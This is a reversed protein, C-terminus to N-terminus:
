TGFTRLGGRYPDFPTEANKSWVVGRFWGMIVGICKRSFFRNRAFVREVGYLPPPCLPSIAIKPSRLHGFSLNKWSDRNKLKKRMSPCGPGKPLHELVFFACKSWKKPRTRDIKPSKRIELGSFRWIEPFKLFFYGFFRGFILFTCCLAYCLWWNPWKPGMESSFSSRVLSANQPM